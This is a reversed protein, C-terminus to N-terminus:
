ARWEKKGTIDKRRRSYKGGAWRSCEEKQGGSRGVQYMGRKAMWEKGGVVYMREKKARWTKRGAIDRRRKGKM